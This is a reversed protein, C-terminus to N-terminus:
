RNVYPHPHPSPVRGKAVSESSFNFKSNFGPYANDEFTNHRDIYRDEVLCCLRISETVRNDVQCQDVEARTLMIRM